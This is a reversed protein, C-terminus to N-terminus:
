KTFKKLFDPNIWASKVQGPKLEVPQIPHIGALFEDESSALLTLEDTEHDLFYFTGNDRVFFNGCDDQAFPIKKQAVVWDPVPGPGLARFTGFEEGSPAQFAKGAIQSFDM